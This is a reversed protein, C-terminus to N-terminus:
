GPRTVRAARWGRGLEHHREPAPHGQHCGHSLYTSIDSGAAVSDPRLELAPSPAGCRPWSVSAAAVSCGLTATRPDSSQVFPTYQQNLYVATAVARLRQM